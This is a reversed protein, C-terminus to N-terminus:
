QSRHWFDGLQNPCLLSHNMRDGFYLAENMILLYTEGTEPHDCTTAISAIPVNSLPQYKGIFPSVCVQCDSYWLPTMNAGAVCTDAHSDLETRNVVNDQPNYVRSLDM